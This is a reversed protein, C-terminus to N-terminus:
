HHSTGTRNLPRNKKRSTFCKIDFDSIFHLKLNTYIIPRSSVNWVKQFFRTTELYPIWWVLTYLGSLCGKKGLRPRSVKLIPIINKDNFTFVDVQVSTNINHGYPWVLVPKGIWFYTPRSTMDRCTLNLRSRQSTAITAHRPRLNCAYSWVM